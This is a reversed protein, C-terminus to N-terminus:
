ESIASELQKLKALEKEFKAKREALRKQKREKIEEARVKAKEVAILSRYETLSQGEAIPSLGFKAGEKNYADVKLKAEADRRAQEQPSIQKVVPPQTFVTGDRSVWRMWKETGEPINVTGLSQRQKEAEEKTYVNKEM